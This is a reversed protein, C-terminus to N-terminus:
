DIGEPKSGAPCFRRHLSLAPVAGPDKQIAFDLWQCGKEADGAACLSWGLNTATMADPKMHMSRELWPIASRYRGSIALQYGVNNAFGPDEPNLEAAKRFAELASDSRGLRAQAIGLNNYAKANAPDIKLALQFEEMAAMTQGADLLALGLNLHPRIKFPAQISAERWLTRNNRWVENRNTTIAGLLLVITSFLGFCLLFAQRSNKRALLRYGYYFATAFAGFVGASPLYASHESIAEGTPLVINPLLAIFFWSCLFVFGPAGAALRRLCLAILLLGGVAAWLSPELPHKVWDLSHDVTFGVPVVMLNLYIYIGKISTGMYILLQDLKGAVAAKGLFLIRMGLYLALIGLYLPLIRRCLPLISGGRCALWILSAALLPTVIAIEKTLLALVFCFLSIATWGSSSDEKKLRFALATLSSFIFMSSLVSSRSVIYAVAESQIPHASFIAAAMLAMGRHSGPFSAQFSGSLESVLMVLVYVLCGNLIHIGINTFHYASPNLKSFHYNAAFSTLLIPRYMQRQAEHASWTEVRRPDFFDPINSIERIYPNRVITEHDDYVFEGYVGPLYIITSVLALLFFDVAMTRGRM